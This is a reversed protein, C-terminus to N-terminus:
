SPNENHNMIFSIKASYSHNGVEEVTFSLIGMHDWTTGCITKATCPGQYRKSGGNCEVCSLLNNLRQLQATLTDGYDKLACLLSSTVMNEVAEGKTM